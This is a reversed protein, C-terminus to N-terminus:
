GVGWDACRSLVAGHVAGEDDAPHTRFVLVVDGAEERGEVCCFHGVQHAGQAPFEEGVPPQVEVELVEGGGVAGGVDRFGPGMREELLDAVVEPREDGGVVRVRPTGRPRQRWGSRGSTRRRRLVLGGCLGAFLVLLLM